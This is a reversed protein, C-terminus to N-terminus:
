LWISIKFILHEYYSLFPISVQQELNRDARDEMMTIATRMLASMEGDGGVLVLDASDESQDIRAISAESQDVRPLPSGMGLGVVCALTVLMTQLLSILGIMMMMMKMM